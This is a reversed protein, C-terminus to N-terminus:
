TDKEKDRQNHQPKSQAIQELHREHENQQQKEAANIEETKKEYKHKNKGIDQPLPESKSM